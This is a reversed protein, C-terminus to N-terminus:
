METNMWEDEGGDVGPPGQMQMSSLFDGGVGLASMEALSAEGFMSSSLMADLDFGPAGAGGPFFASFDMGGSIPLSTLDFPPMVPAPSTSPLPANISLQAIGTELSGVLDTKDSWSWGMNKVGDLM